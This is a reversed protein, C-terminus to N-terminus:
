RHPPLEVDRQLRGEPLDIQLRVGGPLRSRAQTSTASAASSAVEVAVDGTSQANTWANNFWFYLQWDQVGDALLLHGPEDGLLQRSRQLLQLLEDQRTTSASAWRTWRGDRLAWVVVQVGRENPGDAASSRRLLRLAQGDWQLPELPSSDYIAQLDAEWQGILAALRLHREGTVRGAERARAMGSVGQWGLVAIISMILLSVMVEVLTFGRGARRVGRSAVAAAM